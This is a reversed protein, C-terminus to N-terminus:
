AKRVIYAGDKDRELFFQTRNSLTTIAPIIGEVRNFIGTIALNVSNGWQEDGSKPLILTAM